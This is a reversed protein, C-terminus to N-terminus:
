IKKLAEFNKNVYENNKNSETYGDGPLLEM